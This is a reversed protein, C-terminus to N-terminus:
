PKQKKQARKKLKIRVCVSAGLRFYYIQLFELWVWNQFNKSLTESYNKNTCNSLRRLVNKLATLKFFLRISKHAICNVFIERGRAFIEVIPRSSIKAFGKPAYTWTRDGSGIKVLRLNKNLTKTKKSGTKKTQHSCM